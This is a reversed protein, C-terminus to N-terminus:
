IESVVAVGALGTPKSLVLREVWCNKGFKEQAKMQAGVMSPSKVYGVFRCCKVVRWTINM